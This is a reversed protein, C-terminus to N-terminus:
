PKKPKSPPKRGGSRGTNEQAGTGPADTHGEVECPPPQPPTKPPLASRRAEGQRHLLMGM